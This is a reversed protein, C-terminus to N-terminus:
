KTGSDTLMELVLLTVGIAAFGALHNWGYVAYDIFGFGALYLVLRRTTNWTRWLWAAVVGLVAGLAFLVPTGGSTNTPKVFRAKFGDSVTM